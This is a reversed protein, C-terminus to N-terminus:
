ALADAVSGDRATDGMWLVQDAAQLVAPRHSVVVVIRGTDALARLGTLLADEAESDLASSPEDLIVVPCGRIQSRYIARAVAVRQAQGGSLGSGQVGLIHTPDLDAAGAWALAQALVAPDADAEGLAVNGAITGAFLGPHQGAWALWSRSLASNGSTEPTLLEGGLTIRGEFRLFGQLASVLTSKGVGSPGALVALEGPRWEVDIPAPDDAAPAGNEHGPGTADTAAPRRVVVGELRLGTLSPAVESGKPDRNVGSPIKLPSAPTATAANEDLIAFVDDAAAIGDAAAHFQFGVQRVPLFLEPALLLVFLGTALGMRGDVLRLGISVAIIAVSLSAALELVFGSLFSIRLVGMTRGRYEETIERVRNAQRRERGFIKLTGLGGVLDLFGASLRQLSQWQKHQATRTAWGILVMFVPILPLAVIATIGSALDQWLIVVLLIPTAIATLLLQPLYRAFYNDLADLGTTVVTTVRASNRAALWEPGRRAIASMVRQRLESKVGAAGRVAVLEQLWVLVARVVVVAALAGVTGSLTALASGDIALSIAQSLFWSFAIVVVTQALGLVAGAGLFWRAASAYRILRPDLPRM